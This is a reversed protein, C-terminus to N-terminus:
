WLYFFVGKPLQRPKRTSNAAKEATHDCWYPAQYFKEYPSVQNLKAHSGDVWEDRKVRYYFTVCHTAKASGLLDLEQPEDPAVPLPKTWEDWSTVPDPRKGAFPYENEDLPIGVLCTSMPDESSGLSMCLGTQNLSKALTTWVNAKPQPVVWADALRFSVLVALILLATSCADTKTMTQPSLM